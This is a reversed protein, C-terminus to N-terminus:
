NFKRLLINVFYALLFTVFVISLGYVIRYNPDFFPMIGFFKVHILYLELSMVGSFSFFRNILKIHKYSFELMESLLFCMGPVYLIHLFQRVGSFLSFHTNVLFWFYFLLGIIGSIGLFISLPKREKNQFSLYGWYAGLVFIPFRSLAFMRIDGFQCDTLIQLYGIIGVVFLTLIVVFFAGLKDILKCILPYLVYFLIIAPIYWDYWVGRTWFGLTSVCSLYDKVNGDIAIIYIFCVIIYLPFIRIIRRKYFEFVSNNRYSFYLGWGSLFM